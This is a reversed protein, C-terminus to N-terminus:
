KEINLRDVVRHTDSLDGIFKRVKPRGFTIDDFRQICTPSKELVDGNGMTKRLRAM